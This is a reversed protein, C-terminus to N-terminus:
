TMCFFICFLLFLIKKIPSTTAQDQCFLKITQFHNLVSFHSHHFNSLYQRYSAEFTNCPELLFEMYRHPDKLLLNPYPSNHFYSMLVRPYRESGFSSFSQTIYKSTAATLNGLVESESHPIVNTGDDVRCSLFNPPTPPYTIMVLNVSIIQYIELLFLNMYIIPGFIFHSGNSIFFLNRNM